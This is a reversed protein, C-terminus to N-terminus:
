AQCQKYGFQSPDQIKIELGREKASKRLVEHRDTIEDIFAEGSISLALAGVVPLFEPAVPKWLLAPPTLRSLWKAFTKTYIKSNKFLGGELILPIPMPTFRDRYKDALKIAVKLSKLLLRANEEVLQVAVEDGDVEAAQVLPIALDAIDSRWKITERISYYWPVLDEVSSLGIFDLIKDELLKTRTMRGDIGKLIRRLCRIGLEYGGGEDGIVSGWGNIRIPQKMERGRLFVNSGTSAIVVGGCSLLNAALHANADESTVMKFRGTLGVKHLVQRLMARDSESYVGSMSVCAGQLERVMTKFPINAVTALRDLTQALHASVKTNVRITLPPALINAIIEGKDKALAAQSIRAAGLLGLYLGM